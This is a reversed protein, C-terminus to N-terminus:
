LGPEWRLPKVQLGETLQRAGAVVVRDGSQLGSLVQIGAETILGITVDVANVTETEPNYRWVIMREDSDSNVVANAPILVYPTLSQQRTIRALDITVTTSMGPFLTFDTPIPMTFVVDYTQTGPTVKTSHKKYKIPFQRSPAAAFSAQPTYDIELVNVNVNVNMVISEPVQIHIDVNNDSQLWLITQKAQIYQHNEVEMKAVRGSFPAKLVTYNLKNRAMDLTAKSSTLHAGATDYDSQAIIKKKMLSQKRQFDIQALEYVAQRDAVENRADQNDLQALLHGKNVHQGENLPLNILEGSIRFSIEAEDSATVNGPFHRLQQSSSEAVEFLKVPRIIGEIKEPEKQCGTLVIALSVLTQIWFSKSWM